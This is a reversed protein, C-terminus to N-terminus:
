AVALEGNKVTVELTQGPLVDGKLIRHALLTEVTHQLYRKLPRAGYQPDYAAEIIFSKAEDSVHCKLQKDALRRNLDAIQLDIISTINEKTLPKYFVIEDLRNLFEPRFSRRGCAQPRFRLRWFLRAFDRWM